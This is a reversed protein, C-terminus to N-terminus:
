LDKWADDEEACMWDKALSPESLLSNNIKDDEYLVFKIFSLIIDLKNEPAHSILDNIIQQTPM